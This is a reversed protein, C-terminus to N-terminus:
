CFNENKGTTSDHFTSKLLKSLAVWEVELSSLTVFKQPKSQCSDLVGLIYLIFVSVSRRRRSDRAYDSNCFCVTEKAENANGTAELKLGFKKTDLVHKILCLLEKFAVPNAGYNVKSLERRANAIDLKPYM